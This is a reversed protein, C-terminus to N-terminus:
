RDRLRDCFDRMSAEHRGHRRPAVLPREHGFLGVGLSEMASECFASQLDLEDALGANNRDDTRPQELLRPHRPPRELRESSAVDREVPDGARGLVREAHNHIVLVVVPGQGDQVLRQHKGMERVPSGIGGAAIGPFSSVFIFRGRKVAATIPAVPVTPCRSM